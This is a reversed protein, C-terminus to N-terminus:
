KRLVFFSKVMGKPINIRSNHTKDQGITSAISILEETDVILFGVTTVVPVTPKNEGESEWGFTTEADLWEVKVLPYPLKKSKNM